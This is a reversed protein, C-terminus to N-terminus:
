RDTLGEEVILRPIPWGFLEALGFFEPLTPLAHGQEWAKITGVDLGLHAALEEHTLQSKEREAEVIRPFASLWEDRDGM